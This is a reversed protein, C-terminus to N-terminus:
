PMQSAWFMAEALKTIVLSLERSKETCKSAINSAESLCYYLSIEPKTKEAIEQPQADVDVLHIANFMESMDRGSTKFKNVQEQIM